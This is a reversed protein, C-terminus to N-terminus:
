KDVDSLRRIEESLIMIQVCLVCGISTIVLELAMSANCTNSLWEVM